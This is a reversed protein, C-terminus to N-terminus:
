TKKLQKNISNASYGIFVPKGDPTIGPQSCSFLRNALDTSEEASLEKKNSVSQQRALARAAREATSLNLEDKQNRFQELLADVLVQESGRQHEAPLGNVIITNKGFVAIDLGMQRLEPLMTELVAMDAPKLELTRPFLLQQSANSRDHAGRIFQEYLVREHARQQDFVYLNGEFGAAILGGQLRITSSAKANIGPATEFNLPLEPQQQVELDPEIDPLSFAKQWPQQFRPKAWEQEFPNYFPRKEGQGPVPPPAHRVPPPASLQRELGGLGAHPEMPVLNYLGLAHKVAARVISYISRDDDFKVETKTPHVNVDVRSPDLELFLVFSPFSDSAILGEFATQVANNLYSNRIFRRNVYFYQDGRTKRETGPKGIYGSIKMWDTAEAVPLLDQEKIRDLIQSIRKAQTEPALRYVENQHHSLACKIEPYALAMRCFEDIIHRLEVSPSKLFNRRAPINYFLNKVSISTGEPAAAIGQELVKSGEIRIYTATEDDPRRTTMEVQAVAAISAMAEGRFGFSRLSFLDEARAIKSTAHREWCMRADTPGMGKGNDIVRILRSGAEEMYLRIETAGADLSNEMLEKVVSAPRQVVEGAAIQNAVADSLLKIYDAM